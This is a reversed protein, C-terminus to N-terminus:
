VVRRAAYAGSGGFIVPYAVGAVLGVRLPQIGAAGLNTVGTFVGLTFVVVLGYGLAITAGQVFRERDSDSAPVANGCRRGCFFLVVPAVLYYLPTPVATVDRVGFSPGDVAGVHMGYFDGLTGFLFARPDLVPLSGGAMVFLDVALFVVGVLYTGFAGLVGYGLAPILSLSNGGQSAAASEGSQSDDSSSNAGSQSDGSGPKTGSEDM